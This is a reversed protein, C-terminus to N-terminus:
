PLLTTYIGSWIVQCSDGQEVKWRESKGAKRQNLTQAVWLQQSPCQLATPAVPLPLDSDEQILRYGLCEAAALSESVRSSAQVKLGAPGFAEEAEAASM